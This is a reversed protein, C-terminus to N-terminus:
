LVEEALTEAQRVTIRGSMLHPLLTDRLQALQRSEAYGASARIGLSQIVRSMEQAEANGPWPIQCAALDSWSTRPMRTGEVMASVRGVVADSALAAWVFGQLSRTRPRVVLIDTSCVGSRDAVVVKHFYPRLKGFLVDGPEFRFKGSALGGAGGFDDLWMHRRPVHELGVYVGDDFPPQAQIRPNDALDALAILAGTSIRSYSERAVRDAAEAVRRNAAIKDDLAGLVEAIARQRTIAPVPILLRRQQTLSVYPAMDTQASESALQAQFDRSRLFAHLFRGDLHGQNLSRWLTTQPSCVFPEADHPAMAVKGVTGKHSLLVDGPAGIGKRIRKLATENIRSAREFSVRGDVLDAARIFSIGGDVFEDPRPRYEGHNGDEVRLM